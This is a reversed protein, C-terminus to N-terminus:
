QHEHGPQKLKLKFALLKGNKFYVYKILTGLGEFYEINGEGANWVKIKDGFKKSLSKACKDM